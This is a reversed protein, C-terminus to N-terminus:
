VSKPPSTPLLLCWLALKGREFPSFDKMGVQWMLYDFLTEESKLVREWSFEEESPQAEPYLNFPKEWFETDEGIEEQLTKTEKQAGEQSLDPLDRYEVELFPNTQAEQLLFENLELTNLQLVKLVLKLQPTLILQPSLRLQQKLEIM